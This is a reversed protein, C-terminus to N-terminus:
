TVNLYIGFTGDATIDQLKDQSPDGFADLANQRAQDDCSGPQVGTGWIAIFLAPPTGQCKVRIDPDALGLNKVFGPLARQIAALDADTPCEPLFAKVAMDMQSVFGPECPDDPWAINIPRPPRVFFFDPNPSATAGLNKKAREVLLRKLHTDEIGPFWTSKPKM